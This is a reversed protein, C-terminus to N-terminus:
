KRAKMKMKEIFNLQIKTPTEIEIEKNELVLKPNTTTIEELKEEGVLEEIEELIEPIRPYITNQRHVDSGLFHVMNNKLMQRSIIKAKEYYMGIISGFNCQMLVGSDILDYILEPEEQVYSYREPHALVPKLENKLLEYVVDYINMPKSNLPMEFLIYDTGKVTTAKGDKLLEVIDRSIYVENGLHVKIGEIEKLKLEENIKNVKENREAVNVEYYGKIYHSTSIITDFGVDKAEKIMEFTEEESRSGDDVNPLIHSHFDIM